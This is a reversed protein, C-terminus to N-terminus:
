IIKKMFEKLRFLLKIMILHFANDGSNELTRDISKIPIALYINESILIFIDIDDKKTRVHIVKIGNHITSLESKISEILNKRDM